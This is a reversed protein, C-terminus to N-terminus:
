FEFPVTFEMIQNTTPHTFKLYFAQLCLREDSFNKGYLRDGVIAIGLGKEHASHLRLQHTRGTIPTFEVRTRWLSDEQHEGQLFSKDLSFEELLKWETTAMRGYEEDYIQYPRNELDVRMPFEITGSTENTKDSLRGRLLAQYKKEVKRDQFQISLNRHSEKTLGLVLIGSTDMDLRHVSPQEICDPLLKRVRTSICDFKDEGKGPVSLIGSSKNVVIIDEDRYLIELGLMKPLVYGCKEDCPPYFTKHKKLSSAPEKGYFFEALSIPQLGKKYAHNLLKPACCDGTGTPFLFDNEFNEQLTKYTEVSGDFCTFEYFSYINKLSENSLLKREKRLQHLIKGDEGYLKEENVFEEIKRTLEKIKPDARNVENQWKEVEFCPNVWGPIQWNSNYQGSFAKLVVKKNTDPIKCVLVGMMIGCNNKVYELSFKPNRFEEEVCFDMCGSKGLQEILLLCEQKAESEPFPPFM